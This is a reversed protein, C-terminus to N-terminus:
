LEVHSPLVVPASATSTALGSSAEAKVEGAVGSAVEQAHEEGVLAEARAFAEEVERKGRGIVPLEQESAPAAPHPEDAIPLISVEPAEADQEGENDAPDGPAGFAKFGNRKIRRFRTEFGAIVDQVEAELESIATSVPDIPPSPHTGNQISNALDTFNSSKRALDHYREWDHYTVDALWIYDYGLDAQAKDSIALVEASVLQVEEVEKELHAKYWGNVVDETGRLRAVFKEDIKALVKTWLANKEDATRPEKKLNALYAEAGKLFKEAEEVLQDITSQVEANEELEQVAAKRMAVLAKRLSKKKEKIAMDLKEEWKTHRDTIDKRKAATKALEQLRREELEEETPPPTEVPSEEVPVPVPPEDDLGLDAYFAELDIDDAASPSPTINASPIPEVSSASSAPSSQPSSTSETSTSTSSSSTTSAVQSSSVDEVSTSSSVELTPTSVSTQAVSSLLISSSAAARTSSTVPKVESQTVSSQQVATSFTPGPVPSTSHVPSPPGTVTTGDGRSLEKVREWIRAVHPDVFQRRQARLFILLKRLAQKVQKIIPRLYPRATQYGSYTKDAALLIYPQATRQYRNVSSVVFHVHPGLTSEYKEAVATRYPQVAANVRDLQPIVYKHFQPVVYKRYQPVIVKNWQPVVRHDWEYQTRLVVPTAIAVAQEAYPRARDVYPSISPHSFAKYVAPFLYPELILRRYESLGRCVPSKLEADHPCVSVSYITFSLLLYRMLVDALAAFGDKRKKGGKKFKGKGKNKKSRNEDADRSSENRTETHLDGRTKGNALPSSQDPVNPIHGSAKSKSSSAPPIAQSSNTRSAPAAPARRTVVM